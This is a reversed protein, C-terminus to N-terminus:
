IIINYCIFYSIISIKSIVFPYYGLLIIVNTNNYLSFFDIFLKPMSKRLFFLESLMFQNYNVKIICISM